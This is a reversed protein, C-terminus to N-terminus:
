VQVVEEDALISQIKAALDRTENTLIGECSENPNEHVVALPGADMCIGSETFTPLNPHLM